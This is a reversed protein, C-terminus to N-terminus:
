QYIFKQGILIQGPEMVATKTAIGKFNFRRGNQTEVYAYIDEGEFQGIEPGMSVLVNTEVSLHKSASVRGAYATAAIQMLGISFLLAITSPEFQLLAAASAPTSGALGAFVVRFKQTSRASQLPLQPVTLGIGLCVALIAIGTIILAHQNHTADTAYAWAIASIAM